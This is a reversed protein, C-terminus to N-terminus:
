IENISQTMDKMMRMEETERKEEEDSDYDREGLIHIDGGITLRKEYRGHHMSSQREVM